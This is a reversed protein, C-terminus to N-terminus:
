KMLIMKKTSIFNDSRLQYFYVGSSLHSADFSINYSGKDKQENVLTKVERGMSDFIRLSVLGAEPLQYNIITSPNFPNPYCGVFYSTINEGQNLNNNVVAKPVIKGYVAQWNTNSYTGEVSYYQRVDYYLLDNTYTGTFIYGYDTYTQVGRGVTAILEAGPGGKINRWIQYTVNSNPNDTWHMTIPQGVVINYGMSIVNFPPVGIFNATYTMNSGPYFTASNNTSIINNNADTWNSLNYYIGNIETGTAAASIANQEVVSFGSAPSNVQTNNVTIVGGHGVGIFNNQFTPTVYTKLYAVLSAGNDAVAAQYSTSQSYSLVSINNLVNKGWESKSNPAETDNFLWTQGNINQNDYAQLNITQTEYATFTYPSPRSTPSANVGVGIQGGDAGHLDNRAVFNLLQAPRNYTVTLTVTLIGSYSDNATENESLAGLILVRSSLVTQMASKITSSNFSGNGYAIGSNMTGGGGIANWNAPNDSPSISSVQTIKFSYSGFSTSYNVTIQTITANTPIPSLDYQCYSRAIVTSSDATPFIKGIYYASFGYTTQGVKPTTKGIPNWSGPITKTETITPAQAFLNIATLCIVAILLLIKTRM